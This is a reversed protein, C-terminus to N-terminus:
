RAGYIPIVEGLIAGQTGFYQEWFMIHDPRQPTGPRVLYFITVEIGSLDARIDSFYGSEKFVKFPEQNQYQSLRGPVHQLLDSVVVLKKPLGDYGARNFTRLATSQIAEFIPSTASEDTNMLRNLEAELRRSFTLWRDRAFSKNQYIQNVESGTGPNCLQIVPKPVREGASDVAYVEIRGLPAVRQQIRSLNNSIQIRQPETYSDSMDLLLVVLEAPPRDNPCLTDENFPVNIAKGKLYFATWLVGLAVLGTILLGIKINSPGRGRDNSPERDGRLHDRMSAM